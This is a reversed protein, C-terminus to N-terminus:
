RKPENSASRRRSRRRKPRREKKQPPTLRSSPSRRVKQDKLGRLLSDAFYFYRFSSLISVPSPASPPPDVDRPKEPPPPPPPDDCPPLADNRPDRPRRKRWWRSGQTRGWRRRSVSPHLFSLLHSIVVCVLFVGVRVGPPTCRTGTYKRLASPFGVSRVRRALVLPLQCLQAGAATYWTASPFLLPNLSRFPPFPLRVPWLAGVKLSASLPSM